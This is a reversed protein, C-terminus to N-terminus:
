RDIRLALVTVNDRTKRELALDVLKEAVRDPADVKRCVALLDAEKLAETLGDTCVLYLDGPRGERIEVDAVADPTTGVARTLFKKPANTSGARREEPKREREFSHDRTVQEITEGRIRYIRSDGINGLIMGDPRAVLAALTTGMRAGDKTLFRQHLSSNVESFIRRVANAVGYRDLEAPVQDFAEVFTDIAFTSAVGEGRHSGIGDAVLCLGNQESFFFADDNVKRGGVDSRGGCSIRNTPHPNM